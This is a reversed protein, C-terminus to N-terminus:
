MSYAFFYDLQVFLGDASLSLALNWICSGNIENTAVVFRDYSNLIEIKGPRVFHFVEVLLWENQLGSENLDHISVVAATGFTKM